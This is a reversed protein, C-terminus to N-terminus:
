LDRTMKYPPGAMSIARTNVCVTTKYEFLGTRHVYQGAGPSLWYQQSESQSRLYNFFGRSVWDYYVYSRDRYSYDRIFYYALTAILLGGIPVSWEARWARGMSCLMKLYYSCAKDMVNMADIEPKSNTTRWSGDSNPDPFTYSGDDNLFAPLVEFTVGDDFPVSVVQGDTGMDSVSYNKQICRRVEQLLASQGNGEHRDIRSYVEYPLQMLM